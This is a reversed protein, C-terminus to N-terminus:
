RKVNDGGSAAGGGAPGGFGLLVPKGTRGCAEGSRRLFLVRDEESRYITEQRDGRDVVHYIAGAYEVQARRPM